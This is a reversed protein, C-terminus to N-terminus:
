RILILNKISAVDEVVCYLNGVREFHSNNTERLESFLERAKRDEAFCYHITISTIAPSRTYRVDIRDANSIRSLADFTHLISKNIDVDVM